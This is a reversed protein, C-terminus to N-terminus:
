TPLLVSLLLTLEDMAVEGSVRKVVKGDGDILVFYPYGSLGFADGATADKSDAM